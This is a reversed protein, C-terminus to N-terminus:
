RPKIRCRILQSPMSWKKAVSRLCTQLWYAITCYHTPMLYVNMEMPRISLWWLWLINILNMGLILHSIGHLWSGDFAPWWSRDSVQYWGLSAEQWVVEDWSELYIPIFAFNLHPSPMGWTFMGAATASNLQQLVMRDLLVNNSVALKKTNKKWELLIDQKLSWNLSQNWHDCHLCFVKINMRFLHLNLLLLMRLPFVAHDSKLDAANWMSRCTKSPIEWKWSGHKSQMWYVHASTHHCAWCFRLLFM